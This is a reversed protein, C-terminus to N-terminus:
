AETGQTISRYYRINEAASAKRLSDGDFCVPICRELVRDYIRQEEMSRPAKMQQLSLNTTIVMPKMALYRGNILNYVQERAFESQREMGFDDLILLGCNVLSQHYVEREQPSCALTRRLITGFTTMIVEPAFPDRSEVFSNAICAAAFTKGTGPPGWLLLGLGRQQLADWQQVFSAAHTLAPVQGNDREFSCQSLAGCDHFTKQRRPLIIDMFYSDLDM